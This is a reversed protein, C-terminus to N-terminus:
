WPDTDRSVQLPPSPNIQYDAKCLPCMAIGDDLHQLPLIRKQAFCSPCVFHKPDSVSEYLWGEAPTKKLVYEKETDKWDEFARVKQQLEDREQQVRFSDERADFLATQISDVRGLIDRVRERVTMENKENLLTGLVTKIYGVGDIAGKITVLDM